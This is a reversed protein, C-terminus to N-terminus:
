IPAGETQPSPNPLAAGNTIPPRVTNVTAAAKQLEAMAADISKQAQAIHRAAQPVEFAFKPYLAVMMTKVQDLAKLGMQPDAGQLQSFQQSLQQGASADQSAAGGGMQALREVLQRQLM